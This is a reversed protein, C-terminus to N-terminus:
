GVVEWHGTKDSGRRVILGFSQLKKLNRKVTAASVGSVASLQEYTATNNTKLADLLKRQTKNVLDNVPDDANM